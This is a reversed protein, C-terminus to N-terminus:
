LNLSIVARTSTRPKLRLGQSMVQQLELELFDLARVELIEQVCVYLIILIKFGLHLNDNM